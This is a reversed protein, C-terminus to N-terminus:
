KLAPDNWRSQAYEEVMGCFAIYYVDNTGGVQVGFKNFMLGFELDSVLGGLELESM